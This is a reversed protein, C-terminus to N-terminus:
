IDEVRARFRLDIRRARGAKGARRAIAREFWLGVLRGRNLSLDADTLAGEVAAATRKAIGFGADDTVVSVVFRHEASQGSSDSQSRATEPGLAIYTKPAEGMPLADFIAHGVLGSVVQDSILCNYVATQLAEAMAYSM